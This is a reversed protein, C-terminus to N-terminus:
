DIYIETPGDAGGIASVEVEVTDAAAYDSDEGDYHSEQPMTELAAFMNEYAGAREGTVDATLEAKMTELDTNYLYAMTCDSIDVVQPVTENFKDLDISIDMALSHESMDLAKGSFEVHFDNERLRGMNDVVIRCSAGSVSMDNVMAAFPNDEYSIEMDEYSAKATSGVLSLGANVIEPIQFADLTIAYEAGKETDGTYVFNNKLDGVVMDAAIEMFTVAKEATEDSMGGINAVAYDSAESYRDNRWIDAERNQSVVGNEESSVFMEAIRYGDAVSSEYLNEGEDSLSRTYIANNNLDVEQYYQASELIYEGDLTFSAEASLTYNKEELLGKLSTKYVDYGNSNVYNALAGTALIVTGTIVSVLAVSTKSMKM